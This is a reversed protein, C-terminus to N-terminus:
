PWDKRGLPCARGDALVGYATVGASQRLAVGKWGSTISRVRGEAMPVDPRSQGPIAAGVLQGDDDVFLLRDFVRGAAADWGWGVAEWVAPGGLSPRLEDFWGLCLQADAATRPRKLRRPSIQDNDLLRNNRLLEAYEPSGGIMLPMKAAFGPAFGIQEYAVTLKGFAWNKGNTVIRIATVPESPLPSGPDLLALAALNGYKPQPSIAVGLRAMDPIFRYSTVEGAATRLDIRMIPERYLFGVLRGALTREVTIHAMVLQGRAGPVPTWRDLELPQLSGMAISTPRPASRRRLVLGIEDSAVADYRRGIVPLSPGVALTPLRADIDDIRLFLTDPADPGLFHARDLAQLAPTYSSYSQIVPRPDYKLGSGILPALDWPIADVRGSVAPDFDRQLKALGQERERTLEGFRRGGLWSFGTELRPGVGEVTRQLQQTFTAPPMPPAATDKARWVMGNVVLAAFVLVFIVRAASPLRKTPLDLVAFVMALAAPAAEHLILPHTDQRVFSMKFLLFTVWAYGLVAVAPRLDREGQEVPRLMRPAAVGAIFVISVLVILITSVLEPLPGTIQMARGYGLIVELTNRVAEDLNSVPQGAALHAALAALLFVATLVPPRRAAVREADALALLPLIVLVFSYKALALPACLAAAIVGWLDRRHVCILFAAFLALTNFSDKTELPLLLALGIALLALISRNALAVWFAAAVTLVQYAMVLPYTNPDFLRTALYHYPGYTFVIDRGFVLKQRAAFEAALMWSPDLGPAPLVTDAINVLACVVLLALGLALAAPKAAAMSM